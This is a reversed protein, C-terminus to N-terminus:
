SKRKDSGNEPEQKTDGGIVAGIVSEKASETGAKVAEKGAKKLVGKLFRGFGM